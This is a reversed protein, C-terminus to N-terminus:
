GGSTGDLIYGLPNVQRGDVLVEYHLHYGTSRGTSGVFGLVDGRRVHQGGTVNVRSLHGYRTTM